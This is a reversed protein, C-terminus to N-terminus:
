LHQVTNHHHPTNTYDGYMWQWEVNVSFLWHHIYTCIICIDVVYIYWFLFVYDFGKSRINLIFCSSNLTTECGLWWLGSRMLKWTFNGKINPWGTGLMLGLNWMWGKGVLSESNAMELMVICWIECLCEAKHKYSTEHQVLLNGFTNVYNNLSSFIINLANHIGCDAPHFM